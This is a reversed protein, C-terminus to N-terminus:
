PVGRRATFVHHGWARRRRRGPPKSVSTGDACRPRDNATAPSVTARRLAAAEDARGLASLADATVRAPTKRGFTTQVM